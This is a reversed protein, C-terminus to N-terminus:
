ARPQKKLIRGRKYELGDKIIESLETILDIAAHLNHFLGEDWIRQWDNDCLLNVVTAMKEIAKDIAQSSQEEGLEELASELSSFNEQVKHMFDVSSVDIVYQKGAIEIGDDPKVFEFKRM